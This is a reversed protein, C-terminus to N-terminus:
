QKTCLANASGSVPMGSLTGKLVMKLKLGSTNLTGKASTGATFVIKGQNTTGTFSSSFTTLTSVPHIVKLNQINLKKLLSIIVSNAGSLGAPGIVISGKPLDSGKDKGNLIVQFATIAYTGQLNKPLASAAVATTASAFLFAALAVLYLSTRTLAAPMIKM